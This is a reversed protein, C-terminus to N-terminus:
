RVNQSCTLTKRYNAVGKGSGGVLCNNNAVGVAILIGLSHRGLRSASLEVTIVCYFKLLPTM